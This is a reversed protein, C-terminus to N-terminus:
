GSIPDDHTPTECVDPVRKQTPEVWPRGWSTCASLYDSFFRAFFIGWKPSAANILPSGIRAEVKVIGDGTNGPCRM